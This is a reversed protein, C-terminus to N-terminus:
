SQAKFALTIITGKELESQISIQGEMKEVLTHAISLGIGIGGASRQRAKDVRYFRDFVHLLDEKPIGVGYDIVQLTTKNKDKDIKIEVKDESYKLANDTLITLAQILAQENAFVPISDEKVLLHIPRNTFGKLRNITKKGIDVANLDSLPLTMQEEYRALELLQKIMAKLGLAEQHIADISEKLVEEDERGWRKLLSAYSEIITLPTRLEHSANSVFQEQKEFQEELQEIMANFTQAVQNMEKSNKDNISIRKFNRSIRIDEMTKIFQALPRLFLSSALFSLLISIVLLIGSVTLLVYLLDQIDEREDEFDSIVQISATVDGAALIPRVFVIVDDGDYSDYTYEAQPSFSAPIKSYDSENTYEFKIENTPAIIRVLSDEPLLKQIVAEDADSKPIGQNEITSAIYELSNEKKDKIMEVFLLYVALNGVLLIIITWTFILIHLKAKLTM